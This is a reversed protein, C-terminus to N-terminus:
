AVPAKSEALGRQIAGLVDDRTAEVANYPIRLEPPKWLRNRRMQRAEDRPLGALLTAPDRVRLTVFPQLRSGSQYVDVIEGWPVTTEWERFYVGAADIRLQAEPQRGIRWAHVGIGLGLAVLLASIWQRDPVSEGAFLLMAVGILISVAAIVLGHRIKSQGIGFEQVPRETM